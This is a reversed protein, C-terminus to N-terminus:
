QIEQEFKGFLDALRSTALEGKAFADHRTSLVHKVCSGFLLVVNNTLGRQRGESGSSSVSSGRLGLGTRDVAIGVEM